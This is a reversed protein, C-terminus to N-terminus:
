LRRVQVSKGKVKGADLGRLAKDAVSREIAVYISFENANFRHEVPAPADRPSTLARGAARRARGEGKM